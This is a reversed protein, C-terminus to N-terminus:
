NEIKVCMFVYLEFKGQEEILKRNNNKKCIVKVKLIERKNLLM